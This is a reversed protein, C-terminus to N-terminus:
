RAAARLHRLLGERYAADELARKEFLSPDVPLDVALREARVLTMRGSQHNVVIEVRAIWAEGVELLSKLYFTKALKGTRRDYLERKLPARSIRDVWFRQLNYSSRPQRAETPVAELIDCTRGDVEDEGVISFVYEELQLRENDEYAVESGFVSGTKPSSPSESVIRKLKKLAPFYMWQETERGADDYDAQLFAMDRENAPESIIGLTWTDRARPGVDMLASEISKRIVRSICRRGGEVVRYRCTLMTLRRYSTSGDSRYIMQEALARAPDDTEAAGSSVLTSFAVLLGLALAGARGSGPRDSGPREPYVRRAKM